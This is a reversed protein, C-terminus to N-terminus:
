GQVHIGCETKPHNAWRGARPDGSTAAAQTCPFCGISPYGRDHLANYPLDYAQIYTWVMDETWDVLPNIKVKENRLDWAIAQASRRSKSQDRRLGAIWADYGVLAQDLPVVKRMSCCLDPDRTWLADGYRAAQQEVTLGPKVKVLNFRIRDQLRDMLDYTEPFLLGTDLTLADVTVGMQHLMHLTVIGTGQFSTVVALRDGYAEVAWHLIDEPYVLLANLLNYDPM